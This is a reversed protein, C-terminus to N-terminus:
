LPGAKPRCQSPSYSATGTEILTDNPMLGNNTAANTTTGTEAHDEGPDEPQFGPDRDDRSHKGENGGRRLHPLSSQAACGARLATNTRM